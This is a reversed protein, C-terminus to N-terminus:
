LNEEGEPLFNNAHYTVLLPKLNLVQTALHVQYYSDKGGSVPILIDYDGDSRYEDVVRKFNVMRSEWDIAQRQEAVQCGTCVGDDNFTLPMASAAPYVCRSCYKM